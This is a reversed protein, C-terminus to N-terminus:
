FSTISCRFHRLVADLIVYYQYTDNSVQM